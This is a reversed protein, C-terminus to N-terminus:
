WVPDLPDCQENLASQLAMFYEMRTTLLEQRIKYSDYESPNDLYSEFAEIIHNSSSYEHLLLHLCEPRCAFYRVRYTQIIQAIELRKTLDYLKSKLKDM